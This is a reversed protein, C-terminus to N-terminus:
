HGVLATHQHQQKTTDNPVALLPRPIASPRFVAAFIQYSSPHRRSSPLRALHMPCRIISALCSARSGSDPTDIRSDLWFFLSFDPHCLPLLSFFSFRHHLGNAPPCFLVLSLFVCCGGFIEKRSCSLKPVIKAGSDTRPNSPGLPPAAAWVAKSRAGGTPPFFHCSSRPSFSCIAGQDWVSKISLIIM